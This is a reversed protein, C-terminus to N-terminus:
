APKKRPPRTLAALAKEILGIRADLAKEKAECVATGRRGNIPVIAVSAM